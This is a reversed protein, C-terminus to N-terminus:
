LIFVVFSKVVNRLEKLALSMHNEVTKKSIGLREAIEENSLGEKRNLDYVAKRQNPMKMLAMDVLLDIERAMVFDEGSVSEEAVKMQDAAFSDRVYKQRLFNMTANRASIYLYTNFNREPDINQRGTWLKVFIEQALEEADSGSKVFGNIFYKVKNFYLLFVQEFANHDGDRLAQITNKTINNNM